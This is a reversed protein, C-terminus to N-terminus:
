HQHINKRSEMQQDLFDSYLDIVIYINISLLHFTYKGIIACLFHTYAFNNQFLSIGNFVKFRLLLPLSSSLYVLNMYCINFVCKSRNELEKLFVYLLLPFLLINFRYNYLHLMCLLLVSPYFLNISSYLLLTEVDLPM